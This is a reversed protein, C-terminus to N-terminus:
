KAAPQLGCEPVVTMAQGTASNPILCLMRFPGSGTNRFQHVDDPAVLVVDGPRLPHESDGDLIAGEGQLVYIEHEYPHFHKPTHGGPALEFERMAFNPAQDQEGVLWRVQCGAAGEMTVPTQPVQDSPKILM